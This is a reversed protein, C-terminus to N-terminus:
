RRGRQCNMSFPEALADVVQEIDTRRVLSHQGDLGTLWDNRGSGFGTADIVTSCLLALGVLGLDCVEHLSHRRLGPGRSLRFQRVSRFVCLGLFTSVGMGLNILDTM